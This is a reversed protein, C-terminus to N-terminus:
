VMFDSVVGALRAPDKVRVFGRGTTLIGESKFAALTRSAVERSSGISDALDAHSARIELDGSDLQARSARELLDYALRERITGLTSLTVLAFTKRLRSALYRAVAQASALDDDILQRFVRHDIALASTDLVAQAFVEPIEGFANVVGVLAGEGAFLVTAQRGDSKQFYIRILGRSILMVREGDGPRYFISGAPFDLRNATTTLRNRATPTLLNLFDGGARTIQTVPSGERNDSLSM